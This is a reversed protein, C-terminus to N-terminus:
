AAHAMLARASRAVGRAAAALSACLARLGHGHSSPEVVGGRLRVLLPLASGLLGHQASAVLAGAGAADSAPVRSLELFAADHAALWKVVYRDRFVGADKRAWVDRVRVACSAGDAARAGAGDEAGGGEAGGGEAGRARPACGLRPVDAFRLEISAPASAHNVLLVAVRSGDLALPKHWGEWAPVRVATAFKDTLVLTEDARAFPLGSAGPGGAWAQNIAIAEKNSILPWLADAITANRLDHSLVLPSSSVCWAGFHARSEAASLAGSAGDPCGLELMDPYAWCGPSSLGARALPVVTHLNAIVSAYSPRIDTSTRYFHFPCWSSNPLTRGWHCNEIVVGRGSGAILKAYAGVDFEASCGDLKVADFGFESLAVIDGLYCEPGSCHDACICNNLYWGATLGLAHARATMAEFDPFRSRNVVPAGSPQHFTFHSPGYDGCLQWGDDLGVDCYGLDCLSTPVGDVRRDRAAVLVMTEEMLQQDVNAGFTNWSRWGMPPTRALGDNLARAARSLLALLWAARM